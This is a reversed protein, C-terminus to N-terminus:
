RYSTNATRTAEMAISYFAIFKHDSRRRSVRAWCAEAMYYLLIWCFIFILHCIIINEREGDSEDERAALLLFVISQM